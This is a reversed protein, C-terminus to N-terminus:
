ASAPAEAVPEPSPAPVVLEPAAIAAEVAAAAKERDNINTVLQELAQVAGSLMDVTKLAVAKQQELQQLQATIIASQQKYQAISNELESKDVLINASM